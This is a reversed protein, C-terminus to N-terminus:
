SATPGASAALAAEISNALEKADYPKALMGVAGAAIVDARLKANPFATVFLIPAPKANRLLKQQLEPGSMGPMQVDLVLCDAEDADASNLFAEASAHVRAEYGLARLLRATAARVEADDDVISILAM